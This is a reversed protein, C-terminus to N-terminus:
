EASRESFRESIHETGPADLLEDPEQSFVMSGLFAAATGVLVASPWLLPEWLANSAWLLARLLAYLAAAVAVINLFHAVAAARLVESFSGEAAGYYSSVWRRLPGPLRRRKRRSPPTFERATAAALIGALGAFTLMHMGQGQVGNLLTFALCGTTVLVTVIRGVYNTAM